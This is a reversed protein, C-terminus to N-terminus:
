HFSKKLRRPLQRLPRVFKALYGILPSDGCRGLLVLLQFAGEERIVNDFCELESKEGFALSLKSCLQGWVCQRSIDVECLLLKVGNWVVPRSTPVDEPSM